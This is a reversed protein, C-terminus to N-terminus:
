SGNDDEGKGESESFEIARQDQQEHENEPRKPRDIKSKGRTGPQEYSVIDLDKLISAITARERNTLKLTWLEEAVQAAASTEVGGNAELQKVEKAFAQLTKIYTAVTKETDAGFKGDKEERRAAANFRKEMFDLLKQWKELLKTRSSSDADTTLESCKM